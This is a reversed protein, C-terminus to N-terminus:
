KGGNIVKDQEKKAGNYLLDEMNTDLMSGTEKKFRYFRFLNRLALLLALGLLVRAIIGWFALSLIFLALFLLAAIIHGMVLLLNLANKDTLIWTSLGFIWGYRRKTMFKQWKSQPKM